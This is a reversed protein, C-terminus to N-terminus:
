LSSRRSQFEVFRGSFIPEERAKLFEQLAERFYSTPMLLHGFQSQERIVAFESSLMPRTMVEPNGVMRGSDLRSSGVAGNRSRQRFRLRPVPPHHIASALVFRQIIACM